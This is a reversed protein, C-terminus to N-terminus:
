RDTHLNIERSVLVYYVNINQTMAAADRVHTSTTPAGVGRMRSARRFRALAGWGRVRPPGAVAKVLLYFSRLNPSAPKYKTTDRETTRAVSGM